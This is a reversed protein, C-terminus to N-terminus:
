SASESKLAERVAVVIAAIDTPSFNPKETVAAIAKSIEQGVAKSSAVDAHHIRTHIALHEPQTYVKNPCYECQYDVVQQLAPFYKAIAPIRHWNYAVMQDIPIEHVGDNKILAEFRRPPDTLDYPQNKNFGILYKGYKELPTWHKHNLYSYYEQMTYESMAPGIVVWGLEETHIQCGTCKKWYQLQKNKETVGGAIIQEGKGFLGEFIDATDQANVM